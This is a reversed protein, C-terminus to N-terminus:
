GKCLRFLYAYKDLNVLFTETESKIGAYNVNDGLALYFEKTKGQLNKLMALPDVENTTIAILDSPGMQGHIGMSAEAVLDQYDSVINLVEDLQTHINYAFAAWHLNKIKTKYGELVGLFRIFFSLGSADTNMSTQASLPTLLTDFENM